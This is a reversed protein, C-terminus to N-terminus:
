MKYMNATVTVNHPKKHPLPTTPSDALKPNKAKEESLLFYYYIM